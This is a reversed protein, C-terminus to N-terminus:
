RRKLSVFNCEAPPKVVEVMVRAKITHILGPPIQETSTRDGMPAENGSGVKNNRNRVIVLEDQGRDSPIIRYETLGPVKQLKAAQGGQILAVQKLLGKQSHRKDRGM